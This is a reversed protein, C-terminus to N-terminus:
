RRGWILAWALRKDAERRERWAVVDPEEEPLPVKRPDIGTMVLYFPLSIFVSDGPKADPYHTRVYEDTAIKVQKARWRKWKADRPAPREFRFQWRTKKAPPKGNRQSTTIM